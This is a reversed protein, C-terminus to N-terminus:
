QVAPKEVTQTKEEEHSKLIEATIKDKGKLLHDYIRRVLAAKKPNEKKVTDRLEKISNLVEAITDTALDNLDDATLSAEDAEPGMIKPTPAELESVPEINTTDETAVIPQGVSAGVPGNADGVDTSTTPANVAGFLKERLADLVGSSAGNPVPVPVNETDQYDSEVFRKRLVDRYMTENLTM